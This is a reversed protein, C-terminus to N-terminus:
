GEKLCTVEFNNVEDIIMGVLKGRNPINGVEEGGRWIAYGKDCFILAAPIDREKFHELWCHIYQTDKCYDTFRFYKYWPKAM